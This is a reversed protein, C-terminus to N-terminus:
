KLYCSVFFPNKHFVMFFAKSRDTPIAASFQKNDRSTKMKEIMALVIHQTNFAKRFGCQNKSFTKDFYPYIQECAEKMFKAFMQFFVLPDTTRSKPEKTKKTSQDFKLRKLSM